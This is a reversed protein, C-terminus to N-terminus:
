DGKRSAKVVERYDIGVKTFLYEGSENFLIEYEKIESDSPFPVTEGASLKIKLLPLILPRLAKKLFSLKSLHRYLSTQTFNYFINGLTKPSSQVGKETKKKYNSDVLSFSEKSEVDLFDFVEKLYISESKILEFPIYKVRSKPFNNMIVEDLYKYNYIKAKNSNLLFTSFDPFEYKVNNFLEVYFSFAAKIPERVTVLLEVDFDHFISALRNLKTQWNINGEDVVLMEESLLLTKSSKELFDKVQSKVVELQKGEPEKSCIYDMVENYLPEQYQERPQKVGLYVLDLKPFIYQQLTSTATKPLGIHLIIRPKVM